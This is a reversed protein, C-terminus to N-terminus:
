NKKRQVIIYQGQIVWRCRQKKLIEDLVKSLNTNQFDAALKQQDNILQNNYFVTLGTQKKIELFIGALAVKTKHYSFNWSSQNNLPRYAILVAWLLLLTFTLFTKIIKKFCFM